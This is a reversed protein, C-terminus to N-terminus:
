ELSTFHEISTVYCSENDSRRWLNPFWPLCTSQMPLSIKLRIPSEQQRSNPWSSLFWRRTMMYWCPNWKQRCSPRLYLVPRMSVGSSDPVAWKLILRPQGGALRMLLSYDAPKISIPLLDVLQVRIGLVDFATWLLCTAVTSLLSQTRSNAPPPYDVVM